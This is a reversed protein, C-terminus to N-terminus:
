ADWYRWALYAVLAAQVLAILWFVKRFSVKSTKHRFIEQAAFGGPTGGALDFLHLTREPVRLVGLKSAAKDGGYLGFSVVNVSALYGLLWPVNWHLNLAVALGGVAAAGLALYVSSPSTRNGSHKKKRM